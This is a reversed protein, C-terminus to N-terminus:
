WRIKNGEIIVIKREKWNKKFKRKNEEDDNRRLAKMWNENGHEREEAWHIWEIAGIIISEDKVNEKETRQEKGNYEKVARCKKKRPLKWFWNEILHESRFWDTAWISCLLTHLGKSSLYLEHKMSKNESKPKVCACFWISNKAM